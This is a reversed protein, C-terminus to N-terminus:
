EFRLADTVKINAGYYSPIFSFVIGYIIAISLPLLVNELSYVIPFNIYMVKQILIGIYKGVLLGVIVALMGSLFAMLVGELIFQITIETKGAGLSKKIGIESIREKVSFFMINMSNIGSIILLLLLIIWMFMKIPKLENKLLEIVSDKTIINFETFDSSYVLKYDILFNKVKNYESNSKCSVIMCKNNPEYMQSYVTEPIYIMTNLSLNKQGNKKFKNLELYNDSTIIDKDYIGIIEFETIEDKENNNDQSISVMGSESVDLEIKKGIPNESGFILDATFKDIVTVRNANAVDSANLFRGAILNVNYPIYTNDDYKGLVGGNGNSMDTTGIIRTNLILYYGNTYKQIYVTRQQDSIYRQSLEGGNLKGAFKDINKEEGDIEIILSNDAFMEAKNMCATYYSNMLMLGITLIFLGIFLGSISLLLRPINSFTMKVIHKLFHMARNIKQM